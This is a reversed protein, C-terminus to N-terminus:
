SSKLNGQRFTIMQKRNEDWLALNACKLSEKITLSTVNHFITNELFCKPLNYNPIKSCLHHIHHYGINGSFWHLIKPLDYFSSGHMSAELHDWVGDREWYTGEYQHQMYFLWTGLSAGILIMPVYVAVFMWFGILTSILSVALIIGANTWLVSKWSKTKNFPLDYPARQKLVFHFWAGFTFLFLPNRYIRYGFKVWLSSQQYEQLTLTYVDGAGRRSLNGSTAHHKSHERTWQTYPTLIFIGLVRGLIDNNKKRKFFSGHGCDHFIIFIRVLLAGGIVAGGLSLLVGYLTHLKLLQYSLICLLFFPVLTSAVQMTSRAVCTKQYAPVIDKWTVAKKEQQALLPEIRKEM